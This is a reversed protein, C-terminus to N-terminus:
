PLASRPSRKRSTYVLLGLAAAIWSFPDSSRSGPLSCNCANRVKDGTSPAAIAPDLCTRMRECSSGSPCTPSCLGVTERFERGSRSNSTFKTPTLCLEISTCVKPSFCDVKDFDSSCSFVRCCPHGDCFGSYTGPPCHDPACGSGDHSTDPHSGSPCSSPPNPVADALSPIPTFTLLFALLSILKAM